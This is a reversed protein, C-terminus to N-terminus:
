FNILSNNVFFSEFRIQPMNINQNYLSYLINPIEKNNLLHYMHNCISLNKNDGAFVLGIIDNSNDDILLSGSDGSQSIKNTLIQNKFIKNFGRGVKVYANKSYITNKNIGTTNGEKKVYQGIKLEDLSKIPSVEHESIVLKPNTIKALAIDYYDNYIGWHLKAIEQDHENVIINNLDGTSQMIVHWNSLIFFDEPYDKLTVIAGITGRKVSSNKVTTEIGPKVFNESQLHFPDSPVINLGKAPTLKEHGRFVQSDVEFIDVLPNQNLLHKVPERVLLSRDRSFSDLIGIEIAYDEKGDDDYINDDRVVAIYNIGEKRMFFDGYQELKKNAELETM